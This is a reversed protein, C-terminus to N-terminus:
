RTYSGDVFLQGITSLLSVQMYTPIIMVFSLYMNAYVNMVELLLQHTGYKWAVIYLQEVWLVWYMVTRHDIVGENRIAFAM